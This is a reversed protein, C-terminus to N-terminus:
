SPLSLLSPSVRCCLCHQLIQSALTDELLHPWLDKRSPARSSHVETDVLCTESGARELVGLKRCDQLSM